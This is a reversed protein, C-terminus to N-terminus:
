QPRRDKDGPTLLWWRMVRFALVVDYFYRRPFARLQQSM